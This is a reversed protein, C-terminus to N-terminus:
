RDADDRRPRENDGLAEAVAEKDYIDVLPKENPDGSTPLKVRPRPEAAHRLAERVADEVIESMTRRDHAAFAKLEVLLHDDITITTRM